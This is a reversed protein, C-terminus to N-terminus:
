NELERPYYVNWKLDFCPAEMQYDLYFRYPRPWRALQKLEPGKYGAQTLYFGISQHYPYILELRKLLDLLKKVSIRPLAEQYARLIMMPGGSYAPRMTMELLTRELSTLRIGDRKEISKPGIELSHLLMFTLGEWIYITNSKRQPKSFAADINAQQLDGGKSHSAPVEFAVYYTTPDQPLLGHLWAATHHSFYVGNKLSLAVALPSPPHLTYRNIDQQSGTLVINTILNQQTYYHIYDLPDSDLRTNIAKAYDYIIESLGTLTYVAPPLTSLYNPLSASLPLKAM